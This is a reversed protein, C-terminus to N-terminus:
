GEARGRVSPGCDRLEDPVAGDEPSLASRARPTASRDRIVLRVPYHDVALALDVRGREDGAVDATPGVTTTV